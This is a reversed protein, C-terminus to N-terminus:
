GLTTGPFLTAGPVVKPLPRSALGVSFANYAGGSYEEVGGVLVSDGDLEKSIGGSISTPGSEFM